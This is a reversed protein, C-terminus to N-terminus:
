PVTVELTFFQRPSAFPVAQEKRTGDGTVTLAPDLSAWGGLSTSQKVEYQLGSVSNWSLQLSTESLPLIDLVPIGIDPGSAETLAIPGADPVANVLITGNKIWAGIASGGQLASVDAWSAPADLILTLPIDYITDDLTDTLFLTITTGDNSVVSATADDRERIYRAVEGYPAIYLHNSRSALAAVQAAFNVATINQYGGTEIGHYTFVTWANQAQVLDLQSEFTALATTTLMLADGVVFYHDLGYTGEGYKWWATTDASNHSNAALLANGANRASLYLGHYAPDNIVDLRRYGYPWAITHCRYGPLASGVQTEIADHSQQMKLSANADNQLTADVTSHSGIEHGNLAAARAGDWDVSGTIVFFTGRVGAETMIPDAHSWHGPLSDDFTMSVAGSANGQWDAIEVAQGALLFPWAPVTALICARSVFRAPKSTQM